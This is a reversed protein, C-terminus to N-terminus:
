FFDWHYILNVMIYPQSLFHSASICTCLVTATALIGISLLLNFTIVPDNSAQSAM